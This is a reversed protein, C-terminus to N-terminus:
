RVSTLRAAPSSRSPSPSKAVLSDPALSPSEVASSSRLSSCSAAAPSGPTVSTL